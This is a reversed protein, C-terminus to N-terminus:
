YSAFEFEFYLQSAFTVIKREKRRKKKERLEFWLCDSKGSKGGAMSMRNGEAKKCRHFGTSRTIKWNFTFNDTIISIIYLNSPYPISIVRQYTPPARAFPRSVISLPATMTLAGSEIPWNTYSNLSFSVAVRSKVSMRACFFDRYGCQYLSVYRSLSLSLSPQHPRGRSHDRIGEVTRRSGTRPELKYMTFRNGTYIM